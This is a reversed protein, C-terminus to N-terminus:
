RTMIRVVVVYGGLCQWSLLVKYVHLSQLLVFQVQCPHGLTQEGVSSHEQLLGSLVRLNCGHHPASLHLLLAYTLQSFSSQFRAQRMCQHERFLGLLCPSSSLCPVLVFSFLKASFNFKVSDSSKIPFYCCWWSEGVLAWRGWQALHHSM